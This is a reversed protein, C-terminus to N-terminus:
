PYGLRVSVAVRARGQRICIWIFCEPESIIRLAECAEEVTLIDPYQEFM